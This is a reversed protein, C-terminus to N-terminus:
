VMAMIEAQMRKRLAEVRGAVFRLERQGGWRGIWSNLQKVAQEIVQDRMEPRGMASRINMYVKRGHKGHRVFVFARTKQPKGGKVPVLTNIMNRAQGRRYKEAAANEDWEFGKHLPSRTNRADALIEDATLHEEFKEVLAEFHEGAVQADIEPYMGKRGWAYKM